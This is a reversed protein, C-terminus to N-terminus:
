RKRCPGQLGGAHRVGLWLSPADRAVVCLAHRKCCSSLVHWLAMGNNKMPKREEALTRFITKPYFSLQPSRLEPCFMNQCPMAVCLPTQKGEIIDVSSNEM